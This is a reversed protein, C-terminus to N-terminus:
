KSMRRHSNQLSVISTKPEGHISYVGDFNERMGFGSGHQTDYAQIVDIESGVARPHHERVLGEGLMPYAFLKEQARAVSRRALVRLSRVSTM